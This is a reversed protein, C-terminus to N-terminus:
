IHTELEQKVATLTQISSLLDIATMSLATAALLTKSLAQESAAYNAFNYTHKSENKPAIAVLAHISPVIQSVNGIDSSGFSLDTDELLVQIGLQAMNERYLTALVTNNLMSDYFENENWCYEMRAGTAMAGAKFCNLVQERLIKLRAKDNARVLFRAASYSPIINPAQGGSTIIGHVRADATFHQRASNLANYSLILADLANIGLEPHTAAHAEKGFFEVDLSICSLTTVTASNCTSPHLMMVADLENFAGQQLMKIKGGNSEEAPTGIVIIQGGLAVSATITGCAAAVAATAILNHGCAHGLNPLADYEALFAIAPRGSGFSARFATPLGCIGHEIVFGHQSLEQTLCAMAHYENFATEPHSHINQSLGQLNDYHENIWLHANAKHQVLETNDM